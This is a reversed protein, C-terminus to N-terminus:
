LVNSSTTSNSNVIIRQGFINSIFALLSLTFITVALLKNEQVVFSSITGVISGLFLMVLDLAAITVGTKESSSTVIIRTIPGYFIACAFVNIGVCLVMMKWGLGFILHSILLVTSSALLITVGMTVLYEKSYKTVLIRLIQTGLLYGGFILIQLNGYKVSSFNYKEIFLFPSSTIWAITISYSISAIFASIMFKKNRILNLFPIYFDQISINSSVISNSIKSEPTIFWLIILIISSVLLLILFIKNWQMLALLSGGITPGLMPATIVAAGLFSLIKTAEQDKYHEHIIAYGAVILTSVSSGQLFRSIIFCNYFPTIACFFTAIAFICGGVLLVPKRDYRDSITGIFVQSIGAGIFWIIISIKTLSSEINFFKAVSPLAPIYMDNSINLVFEYLALFFPFLFYKILQM